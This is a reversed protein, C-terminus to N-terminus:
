ADSESGSTGRCCRDGYRMCHLTRHDPSLCYATAYRGSAPTGLNCRYQLAYGRRTQWRWQRQFPRIDPQTSNGKVSEGGGGDARQGAGRNSVRTGMDSALRRLPIGPDDLLPQNLCQSVGAGPPLTTQVRWLVGFDSSPKYGMFRVTGNCLSFSTCRSSSAAVSTVLRKSKVSRSAILLSASTSVAICVM